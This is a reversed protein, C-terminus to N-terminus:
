QLEESIRKIIENKGLLNFLNYMEIGHECGTLALRIPMYLNKGKADSENIIDNLFLKFTNKDFNFNDTCKVKAVVLNLVKQSLENKVFEDQEETLELKNFSEDIFKNIEEGYSIENKFMLAISNLQEDSKEKLNSNEKIFPKVFEFYKKDDLNKIYHSNMWHLKKNDFMTPSKSLRSPDFKLCMEDLTFIEQNDLPTWGLLLLFNLIAEPLFGMKRYQSVFQVINNDRKSLKKGNENIIITMHGFQPAEWGFYDYIFLQKPTNSLHEEGRLVHTIDMIHDDIVVAFNYTPIGNSKLIVFDGFDNSNFSVEGRVLDNFVIKKNDPVKLRISPKIGKERLAQKEDESLNLCRRDYKFSTIGREEQEIRSKELDEDSCFCEYAYGKKVLEYAYKQYIDIKEMQRYLKYKPNPNEMSEDPVIGLWILDHLQSYEAGEINREIDTDEIRFVFDGGYKKAYLYNFLASRAGGIHLYGTPSPAYRVRVKKSM